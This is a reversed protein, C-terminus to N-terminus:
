MSKSADSERALECDGLPPPQLNPPFREVHCIVRIEQIGSSGANRSAPGVARNQVAARESLNLGVDSGSDHLEREFVDESYRNPGDLPANQPM